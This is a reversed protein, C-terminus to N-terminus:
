NKAGAAATLGQAAKGFDAVFGEWDKKGKADEPPPFVKAAGAIVEIKHGLEALRDFQAASLKDKQDQLEGLEREVACGGVKDSAFFVMLQTDEGPLKGGAKAKAKQIKPSFTAALAKAKDIDGAKFADYLEAANQGVSASDAHSSSLHYAMLLMTAAVV